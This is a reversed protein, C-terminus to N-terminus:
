RRVTYGLWGLVESGLGAGKLEACGLGDDMKSGGTWAWHEPQDASRFGTGGLREKWVAMKSMSDFYLFLYHCSFCILEKDDLRKVWAAM